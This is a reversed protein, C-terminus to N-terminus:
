ALSRQRVEDRAGETWEEMAPLALIAEAYAAATGDDGFRGLDVGYTRFRTAMPAYMADANTFAGFLFPGGQGFRARTDKWIAAIRGIDAELAAGLPPSPLKSLLDMPMENRLTAFGSHMEASISRAAARAEEDQPWLMHEPHREALTDLIALSDWVVGTKTKLAPVKGSPCHRLIEAKSNPQRLRICEEAFPIGCQKLALWPRLSWSSLNKDGIVLTYANATM